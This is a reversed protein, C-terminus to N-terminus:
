GTNMFRLISIRCKWYKMNQDVLNNIDQLENATEILGRYIFNRMLGSNAIYANELTYM